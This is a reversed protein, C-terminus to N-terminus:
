AAKRRSRAAAGVTGASCLWAQCCLGSREQNRLRFQIESERHAEPDSADKPLLRSRRVSFGRSGLYRRFEARSWERVHEPKNSARCDRGRERDREPTSFVILTDPNSHHRILDLMSQPEVLHEIVDACVIMDFCRGLSVDARELDVEVLRARVGRTIAVRLASAQDMGVVEDFVPVLHIATKTAVGCGLDLVSRLGHERGLRAAWEYVHHQWKASEAIRWDSWYSGDDRNTDLTLNRTQQRYVAPLCLSEPTPVTGPRPTPTEVHPSRKTTM